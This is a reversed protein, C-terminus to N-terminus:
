FIINTWSVCDLLDGSGVASTAEPKRKLTEARWAKFRSRSLMKREASQATM